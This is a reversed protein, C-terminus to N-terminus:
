QDLLCVSCSSHFLYPCLILFNILYLAFEVVDSIHRMDFELVLKPTTNKYYEIIYCYESESNARNKNEM